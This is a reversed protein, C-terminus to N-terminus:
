PQQPIVFSSDFTFSLKGSVLSAAVADDDGCEYMPLPIISEGYAAVDHSELNALEITVKNYDTSLAENLAGSAVVKPLGDLIIEAVRHSGVLIQIEIEFPNTKIDVISQFFHFLFNILFFDFYRSLFYSSSRVIYEPLIGTLTSTEDLLTPGWKILWRKPANPNQTLNRSDSLSLTLEIRM